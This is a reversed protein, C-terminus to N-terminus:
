VVALRPLVALLAGACIQAAGLGRLVAGLAARQLAAALGLGAVHLLITAVLFGLVYGTANAATPLEAGHAVGHFFAFAGVIPAAIWLPPRLAAAVVAGLVPV